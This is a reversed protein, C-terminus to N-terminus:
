AGTTLLGIYHPRFDSLTCKFFFIGMQIAGTSAVRSMMIVKISVWYCELIFRGVKAM